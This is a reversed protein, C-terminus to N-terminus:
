GSKYSSTHGSGAGPRGRYRGAVLVSSGGGRRGSAEGCAGRRCSDRSNAGALGGSKLGPTRSRLSHACADLERGTGPERSASRCRASLQAHAPWQQSGELSGDGLQGYRRRRAHEDPERGVVRCPVHSIGAASRRGGVVARDHGVGDAAVDVFQGQAEGRERESPRARPRPRRRGGPPRRRDRCGRAHGTRVMSSRTGPREPRSGLLDSPRLVDPTGRAAPRRM